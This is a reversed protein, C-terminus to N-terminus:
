LIKSLILNESNQDDVVCTVKNNWFQREAATIHITTDNVHALFTEEDVTLYPLDVIYGNGDGLKFAPINYTTNDKTVTKYDTTVYLVGQQSAVNGVGSTNWQSQTKAVVTLKQDIRGSIIQYFRQLGQLDLYSNAM